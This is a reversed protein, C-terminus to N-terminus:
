PKPVAQLHVVTHLEQGMCHVGLCNGPALRFGGAQVWAELM